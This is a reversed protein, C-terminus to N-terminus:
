TGNMTARSYLLSDRAQLAGAIDGKALESFGTSWFYPHSNTSQISYSNARASDYAVFEDTFGVQKLRPELAVADFPAPAWTTFSADPTAFKQWHAQPLTWPSFSRFFATVRDSGNAAPYTAAQVYIRNARVFFRASGFRGDDKVKGHMFLVHYEGLNYSTDYNVVSFRKKLQERLGDYYSSDDDIWVGEAVCNVGFIYSANEHEDSCSALHSIYSSKGPTREVPRPYIMKVPVSLQYGWLSDGCRYMSDLVAMRKAPQANLAPCFFLTLLLISLTNKM